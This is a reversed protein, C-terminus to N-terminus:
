PAKDGNKKTKLTQILDRLSTTTRSLNGQIELILKGKIRSQIIKTRIQREKDMFDLFELIEESNLYEGENKIKYLQERILQETDFTTLSGALIKEYIDIMVGSDKLRSIIFLHSLTILNSYYGDVILEPLRQLRLVHSIYSPKLNIRKGIETVPVQKEKKLFLILKSKKFIDTERLIQSIVTEVEENM